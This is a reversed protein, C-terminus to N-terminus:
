LADDDEYEWAVLGCGLYRREGGPERVFGHDAVLKPHFEKAPTPKGKLGTVKWWRVFRRYVESSKVANGDLSRTQEKVFNAIRDMDSQYQATAARVEDPPMLGVRRWQRFGELMWNFVGAREALLKNRLKPDRRPESDDTFRVEYPIVLIRRWIAYDTGRIEPRNNSSIWFKASPRFRIFEQYLFRASLEDEGTLRKFLNEALTQGEEIESTMVVRAGRLQALDNSASGTRVKTMLVEPAITLAYDGCIERIVEQEVGKGNAGSGYKFYSAQESADGSLSHGLARQKFAVIQQKGPHIDQQFKVWLPCQAGPKFDVNMAKTIRDTRCGRRFEDRELDYVGNRLGILWPNQDYDELLDVVEPHSQALAIASEIRGRSESTKAWLALAKRRDADDAAAAEAYIGRAVNGALVVVRNKRDQEFRHNTWTHWGGGVLYRLDDVHAAILRDRNGLDTLAFGAPYKLVNDYIRRLEGEDLPPDCDCNRLQLASWIETDPVARARLGCGFSHLSKNRRGDPIMREQRTGSRQVIETTLWSPASAIEVKADEYRYPGTEIVSPPVLVYGGESKIDIGAALGTSNKLAKGFRFLRHQGGSPTNNTLTLPLDGHTACIEVLSDFGNQGRKVDIDIAAIEATMAAGWACGPHQRAWEEIQAGETSADKVGHETLPSKAEHKKDLTKVRCPFVGIGYDLMVSLEAPIM